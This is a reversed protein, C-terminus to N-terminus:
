KDINIIVCEPKRAFNGFGFTLIILILYAAMLGVFSIRIPITSFPLAAFVGIVEIIYRAFLWSFWGIIQGAFLNIMSFVLQVFGVLMVIPVAPLVFLNVIPAVLSLRQFSFLVLPMTFIIAALTNSFNERLAFTEPLWTFYKSLKPSFYILGVTSLFSLQFGADWLLIRPNFLAMLVATLVLLNGARSIRGIQKALLVVIGMITARIVSASLGTLVAFFILIVVILWFAKRRSISLYRALNLFVAVMITINYGSVAVIHTLGTQNFESLLYKPIAQRSGILIGSILAAQPEAVTKALRSEFYKKTKLAANVFFKGKDRALLKIKPQYCLAYINSRALYKDYRFGDLQEPKKLQCEIELFDGYNYEPYMEEWVLIKGRLNQPQVSLKQKGDSRNPEEVVLGSFKIEKEYYFAVHGEDIKPVFLGAYINGLIFFVILVIVQHRRVSYILGFLIVIVLCTIWGSGNFLLRVDSSALGILFVLSAYFFNRSKTLQM